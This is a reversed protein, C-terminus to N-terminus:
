LIQWSLYHTLIKCLNLSMVFTQVNMLIIIEKLNGACSCYLTCATKLGVFERVLVVKEM